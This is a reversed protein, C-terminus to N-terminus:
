VVRPNSLQRAIEPIISADHRWIGYKAALCKKDGPGRHLVENTVPFFHVAHLIDFDGTQGSQEPIGNEVMGRRQYLVDADM